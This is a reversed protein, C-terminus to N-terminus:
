DGNPGWVPKHGLGTIQGCLARVGERLEANEQRLIKVEWELATVRDTLPKILSITAAVDATQAETRSRTLALAATVLATLAAIVAIVLGPDIAM